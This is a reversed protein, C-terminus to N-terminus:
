NEWHNKLSQLQVFKYYEGKKNMLDFHNGEEVIKGEQLVIIRDAEQITSLRHAIILATKSKLLSDLALQVKKESASDLSSTAEDLILVPANKLVARAIAIRQKQGGSLKNGSDGVTSNYKEELEMVFDDINAIRAAERISEM